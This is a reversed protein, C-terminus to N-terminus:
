IKKSYYGVAKDRLFERYWVDWDLIQELTWFRRTYKETRIERFPVPIPDHPWGPQDSMIAWYRVTGPRVGFHKAINAISILQIKTM